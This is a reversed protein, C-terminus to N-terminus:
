SGLRDCRGPGIPQVSTLSVYTTAVEPPTNARAAADASILCFVSGMCSSLPIGPGAADTDHLRCKGRGALGAGSGSLAILSREQELPCLRRHGAQDVARQRCEGRDEGDREGRVLRAVREDGPQRGRDAGADAHGEGFPEGVGAVQGPSPRGYRRPAIVPAPVNRPPMRCVSGNRMGWYRGATSTASAAITNSSRASAQIRRRNKPVLKRPESM